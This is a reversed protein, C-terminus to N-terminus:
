DYVVTVTLTGSTKTVDCYIATGFSVGMSPTFVVVDDTTPCVITIKSTGSNDTSNKIEVKDGSTVGDFCAMVAYVSGPKDKVQGDATLVLSAM